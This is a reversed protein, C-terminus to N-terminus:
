PHFFGEAKREVVTVSKRFCRRGDRDGEMILGSLVFGNSVCNWPYLGAEDVRCGTFVNGQSFDSFEPDLAGPNHKTIVVVRFRGLGHDILLAPEVSAIQGTNIFIAGDENNSTGFFQDDTRAEINIRRFQFADEAAM